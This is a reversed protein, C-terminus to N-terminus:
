TQGSAQDASQSLSVEASTLLKEGTTQEEFNKLLRLAEDASAIIRQEAEQIAEPKKVKGLRYALQKADNIPQRLNVSFNNIKNALIEELKTTSIQGDKELVLIKKEAEKLRLYEKKLYFSLPIVSLLSLVILFDYALDVEGINLSFLGVLTVAFSLSVTPYYVFALLITLLYLIFFFPSFFWGTASVLFLLVVTILFVLSKTEKIIKGQKKVFFIYVILGILAVLTLHLAYPATLPSRTAIFIAITSAIFQTAPLAKKWPEPLAQM